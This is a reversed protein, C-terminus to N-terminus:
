KRSRRNQTYKKDIKIYFEVDDEHINLVKGTRMRMPQFRQFQYGKRYKLTTQGELLANIGM